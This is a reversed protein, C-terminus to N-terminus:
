TRKIVWLLKPSGRKLRDKGDPWLTQKTLLKLNSYFVQLVFLVTEDAESLTACNVALMILISPHILAIDLNSSAAIKQYLNVPNYHLAASVNQDVFGTRWINNPISGFLYWMIIIRINRITFIFVAIRFIIKRVLRSDYRLQLRVLYLWLTITKVMEPHKLKFLLRLM